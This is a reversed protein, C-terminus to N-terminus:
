LHDKLPPGVVMFKGIELHVKKWPIYEGNLVSILSGPSSLECFM